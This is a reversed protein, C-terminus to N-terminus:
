SVWLGIGLARVIWRPWVYECLDIVTQADGNFSQILVTYCDFSHIFSQVLMEGIRSKDWKHLFKISSLKLITELM